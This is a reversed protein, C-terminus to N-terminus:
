YEIFSEFCNNNETKGLIYIEKNNTDSYNIDVKADKTIEKKFNILVRKYDKKDKLVDDIWSGYKTNNVHHNVDLDSYVIEKHYTNLPEIYNFSFDPKSNDIKAKSFDYDLASPSLIRRKLGDILVWQSFGEILTNGKLDVMKYNRPFILRNPAYAITSAIVEEEFLPLRKINYVAKTVVLLINKKLNEEYPMDIARLDLMGVYEFIEM